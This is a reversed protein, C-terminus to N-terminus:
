MMCLASRLCYFWLFIPCLHVETASHTAHKINMFNENLGLVQFVSLSDSSQTICLIAIPAYSWCKSMRVKVDPKVMSNGVALLDPIVWFSLLNTQILDRRILWQLYPCPGDKDPVWSRTQSAMSQQLCRGICVRSPLVLCSPSSSQMAQLARSCFARLRLLDKPVQSRNRKGLNLM